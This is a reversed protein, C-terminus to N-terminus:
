AKLYYLSIVMDFNPHKAQVYTSVQVKDVKTWYYEHLEATHWFHLFLDQDQYAKNL